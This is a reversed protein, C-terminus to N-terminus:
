KFIESVYRLEEIYKPEIEESMNSWNCDTLKRGTKTQKNTERASCGV